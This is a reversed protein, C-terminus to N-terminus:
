EWLHTQMHGNIGLLDILTPGALLGAVRKPPLVALVTDLAVPCLSPLSPTLLVLVIRLPGFSIGADDMAAKTVDIPLEETPAEQGTWRRLSEFMEHHLFQLTPHQMWVDVVM